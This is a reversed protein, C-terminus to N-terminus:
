KFNVDMSRQENDSREEDCFPVEDPDIPLSLVVCETAIGGIRKNRTFAKGRTDILGKRKLWGLFGKSSFGEDEVVRNFVGRVIYVWGSGDIVGYREPSSATFKNSNLTIWDCIFAYARENVDVTANTQLFSIMDEPTIPQDHFFWESALRDAVVILAASLAQKDTADNASLARAVENYGARVAGIVDDTLRGVFAKGAHGFNAKLAAAVTRGDEIVKHAEDNCEIDIVRNIAGAGSNDQTLPTEGSTIVCNAWTATRDLGGTKKGRLRGVGEALKYVSFKNKGNDNRALQLEDIILPLSNLFGAYQEFGVATSDFTKIYRGMQPDAWVSAAAMLAVTKGTGSATGWLHVFFPLVGLPEVLVSAFSSALVIKAAISYARVRRATEVWRDFSGQTRVANFAGCFSPDGDYSLGEVYPSFGHGPIHGLRGVSPQEPINEYNLNEIDHLYKVLHKASESTVAIGNDALSVISNASALTRKDSILRRWQYGKRFALEMKEAGTDVNVLRCVPMIPHVCAINEGMNTAQTIGLDDARWAGTSLEMPQGEFETVNSQIISRGAQQDKYALYMKKFNRFGAAAAAMAMEELRSDHEFRSGRLAYLEAYPVETLYDKKEYTKPESNNM